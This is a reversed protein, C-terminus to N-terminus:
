RRAYRRLSGSRSSWAALVLVGCCMLGYGAPEPSAEAPAASGTFVERYYYGLGDFTFVDQGSVNVSIIAYNTYAPDCPGGLEHGEPLLCVNLTGKLSAPISVIQDAAGYPPAIVTGSLLPPGFSGTAVAVRTPM